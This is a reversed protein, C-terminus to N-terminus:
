QVAEETITTTSSRLQRRILSFVLIGLLPFVAGVTMGLRMGFQDPTIGLSQALTTATDSAIVADTISGIMQPGVSAGLDGGAAMMAFLVVGGHPLKREAAVLSGPWMMSVCLGTLACAGLGFLPFPSLAAILYCVTAGVAGWVLVRGIHKGIKTYLTRGIGLMVAFLAAGFIDGWLKPLGVAMELYGSCWQAITCESAGGLFIGFVFLWLLPTLFFNGTSGSVKPTNLTPIDSCWFLFTSCVPVLTVLLVLWQWHVTGFLHLFLTAIIIVAVTGWAYIAHLKSMERDPDDSPIAAIVPSLLTEALGSAASFVITGVLLGLYTYAPFLLPAAAYLLLGVTALVPTLRLTLSINFKDAFFSFLLDVALQTVFNILVLTGLLSYSIGYQSRFTLFLLPPLNGIISMTVNGSYCALKLRFFM